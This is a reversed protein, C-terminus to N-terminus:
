NKKGTRTFLRYCYTEFTEVSSSPWTFPLDKSSATRKVNFVRRRYPDHNVLDLISSLRSSSDLNFLPCYNPNYM